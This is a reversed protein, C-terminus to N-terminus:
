TNITSKYRFENVFSRTLSLLTLSTQAIGLTLLKAVNITAFNVFFTSKLFM